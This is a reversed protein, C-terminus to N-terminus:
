GELEYKACEDLDFEYLPYICFGSVRYGGTPKGLNYKEIFEEADPMNNTDVYAQNAPLKKDLNVTLTSYPEPGYMGDTLLQIALNRNACYECVSLWIPYEVGTWMSKIKM